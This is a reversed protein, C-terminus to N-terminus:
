SPRSWVERSTGTQLDRVFLKQASPHKSFATVLAGGEPNNTWGICVSGGELFDCTVEYRKGDPGNSVPLLQSM